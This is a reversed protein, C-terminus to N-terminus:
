PRASGLVRVHHVLAWRDEPAPIKEDFRPMIVRGGIRWGTSIKWFMEGDTLRAQVEAKTLDEPPKARAAHLRAQPGDGKGAAGHCMQCHEVYLAQARRLVTPGPAVPNTRAAEDRPAVWRPPESAAPALTVALVVAAANV